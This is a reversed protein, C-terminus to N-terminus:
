GSTSAQPSSASVRTIREDNGGGGASGSSHSREPERSATRPASVSTPVLQSVSVLLLRQVNMPKPTTPKIAIAITARTSNEDGAVAVTVSVVVGDSACTM